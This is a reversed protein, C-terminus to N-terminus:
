SGERAKENGNVDEKCRDIITLPTISHWSDCMAVIIDSELNDPVEKDAVRYPYSLMSYFLSPLTDVFQHIYEEDLWISENTQTGGISTFYSAYDLIAILKLFEVSLALSVPPSGNNMYVNLVAKAVQGKIAPRLIKNIPNSSSTIIASELTEGPGMMRAIAEQKVKGAATLQRQAMGMLPKDPLQYEIFGNATSVRGGDYRLINALMGNVDQRLRNLESTSKNISEVVRFAKDVEEKNVQSLMDVSPSPPNSLYIVGGVGSLIFLLFVIVVVSNLGNSQKRHKHKQSARLSKDLDIKM